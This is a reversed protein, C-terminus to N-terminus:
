AGSPCSGALDVEAKIDVDPTLIPAADIDTADMLQVTRRLANLIARREGEPLAMLREIFREQLPTPLTEFRQQGMPTLSLYARRRDNSGRERVVLGARALRDIIRSVTASSLQVRKGVTAVTIEDPAEGIAKLCMLQPVTLGVERSLYKSHESICRVIQRISTLVEHAIERDAGM